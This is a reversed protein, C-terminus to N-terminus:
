DAKPQSSQCNKNIDCKSLGLTITFIGKSVAEEDYCFNLHQFLNLM